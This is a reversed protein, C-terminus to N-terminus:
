EAQVGLWWARHAIVGDDNEVYVGVHFPITEIVDL